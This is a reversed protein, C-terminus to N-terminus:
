VRSNRGQAGGAVKQLRFCPCSRPILLSVFCFSVIRGKTSTSQFSFKTKIIFLKQEQVASVLVM